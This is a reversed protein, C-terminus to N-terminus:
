DTFSFVYGPCNVSGTSIVKAADLTEIHTPDFIDYAISLTTFITPDITLIASACPNDIVIQFLLEGAYTYTAGTHKAVVKYNYSSIKAIDFTETTLTYSTPANAGDVTFVSGDIVSDDDVLVSLEITPCGPESSTVKSVLLTQEDAAEYISYSIVEPIISSDITLVAVACPDDVTVTFDLDAINTYSAGTYVATVKLNYTGVKTTDSTEIAFTSSASVFIFISPDLPSGDSNLIDLRIAPCTATIEDSSM